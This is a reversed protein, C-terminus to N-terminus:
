ANNIKKKTKKDVWVDNVKAIPTIKSLFSVCYLDYLIAQSAIRLQFNSAITIPMNKLHDLTTHKQIRFNTESPNNDIADEILSSWLPAIYMYNSILKLFEFSYYPNIELAKNSKNKENLLQMQNNFINEYHHHFKSRQRITTENQHCAQANASIKM